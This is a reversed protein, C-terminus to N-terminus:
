ALVPAKHGQAPLPVPLSTGDDATVGGHGLAAYPAVRDWAPDVMDLAPGRYVFDESVEQGCFCLFEFRADVTVDGRLSGALDRWARLVPVAQRLGADEMESYDNYGSGVPSVDGQAGNVLADVIEHGQPLPGAEKRIGDVVLRTAWGQNDGSFLLNGDGGITGHAAYNVIVGLPLGGTTDVRIVIADQDTRPPSDPTPQFDPDCQSEPNACWQRTVRRNRNAGPLPVTKWGLRAPALRADARLVAGTIGAVVAEFVRPDFEDGGLLAYGQYQFIGGPGQHTHTAGILLHDRDVGAAAIRNVVAQHVEGPVGGLDTQVVAVKVGNAGRLVFANAQLRLHIGRNAVFEKAYLETDASTKDKVVPEDALKGAEAAAGAPDGQGLREAAAGLHEEVGSATFLVAQRATYGWMPTTVPPTIVGSAAGACLVGDCAAAAGPRAPLTAAVLVCVFLARIRM